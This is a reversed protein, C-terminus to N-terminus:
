RLRALDAISMTHIPMAVDALRALSQDLAYAEEVEFRLQTLAVAIANSSDTCSFRGKEGQPLLIRLSLSAFSLKASAPHPTACRYTRACSLACPAVVSAM